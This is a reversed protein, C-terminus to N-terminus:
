SVFVFIAVFVALIVAIINLSQNAKALKDALKMETEEITHKLLQMQLANMVHGRDNLSSKVLDRLVQDRAAKLEEVTKDATELDRM